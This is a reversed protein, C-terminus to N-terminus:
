HADEQIVHQASSIGFISIVATATVIPHANVPIQLQVLELEQAYQLHIELSAIAYQFKVITDWTVLIANVFMQLFVLEMALAFPIM